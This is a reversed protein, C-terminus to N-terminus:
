HEFLAEFIPGQMADIQARYLSDNPYCNSYNLFLVLKLTTSAQKELILSAVISLIELCKKKRKVDNQMLYALLNTNIMTHEITVHVIRHSSYFPYSTYMQYPICM